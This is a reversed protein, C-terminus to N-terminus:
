LVGMDFLYSMAEEAHLGGLMGESRNSFRRIVGSPPSSQTGYELDFVDSALHEPYTASYHGNSHTVSLASAIHEPWGSLRAHEQLHSTLRASTNEFGAM